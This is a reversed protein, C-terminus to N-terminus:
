FRFRYTVFNFLNSNLLRGLFEEMKTETEYNMFYERLFMVSKDDQTTLTMFSKVATILYSYISNEINRKKIM